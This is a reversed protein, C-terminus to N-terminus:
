AIDAEDRLQDLLPKAGLSEAWQDLYTQDLTDHQVEYVRVADAFHKESGGSLVAWRLKALITDEPSSVWFQRGFLDEKCRRRFRSTDFPDATLIWFDVKSGTETDILNFMPGQAVAERAADADFYYRPPGFADALGPVASGQISVVVDIDHTSRPQGHLSSAVSGTLMYEIGQAELADVVATLLEQQLM